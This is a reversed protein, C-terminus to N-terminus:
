QHYLIKSKVIYTRLFLLEVEIVLFRQFFCIYMCSVNQKLFFEVIGRSTIRNEVLTNV